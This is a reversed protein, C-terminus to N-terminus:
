AAADVKADKAVNEKDEDFVPLMVPLSPCDSTTFESASAISSPIPTLTLRGLSPLFPVIKLHSVQEFTRDGPNGVLVTRLCCEPRDDGTKSPWVGNPANGM